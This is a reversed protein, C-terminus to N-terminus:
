IFSICFIVLYIICFVIFLIYSTSLSHSTKLIRERLRDKQAFSKSESYVKLTGKIEKEKYIWFLIFAVVSVVFILYLIVM